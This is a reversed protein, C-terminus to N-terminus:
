RAPVIISSGAVVRDQLDNRRILWDLTTAFREAIHYLKEGGQVTYLQEGPGPDKRMTLKERVQGNNDSSALVAARNGRDPTTNMSKRYISCGSAVLTLAALVSVIMINRM